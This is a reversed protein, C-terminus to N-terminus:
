PHSFDRLFRQRRDYDAIAFSQSKEREIKGVMMDALRVAQREKCFYLYSHSFFFFKTFCKLVVSLSLFSSLVAHSISDDREKRRV